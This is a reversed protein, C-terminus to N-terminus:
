ETISFSYAFDTGELQLQPAAYNSRATGVGVLLRGSSDIAIRQTGGTTISVEDAASFYLGTNTDTGSYFSPASATGAPFKVKGDASIVGTVDLTSDLTAAGTVDLTGPVDVNSTFEM